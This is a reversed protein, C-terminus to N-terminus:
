WGKERMGSIPVRAREKKEHIRPRAERQCPVDISRVRMHDMLSRGGERGVKKNM